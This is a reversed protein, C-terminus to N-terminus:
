VALYESKTIGLLNTMKEFAKKANGQDM